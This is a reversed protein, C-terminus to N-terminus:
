LDKMGCFYRFVRKVTIWHEKGLTSMYMSLVGVVHSINPLTCVMIYMLSGVVSEYPVHEM